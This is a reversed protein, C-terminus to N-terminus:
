LSSRIAHPSKEPCAVDLYTGSEDEKKKCVNRPTPSTTVHASNASDGAEKIESASYAILGLGIAILCGCATIVLFTDSRDKM